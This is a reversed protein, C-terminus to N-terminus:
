DRPSPSTYLLCTSGRLLATRIYTNGTDKGCGALNVLILISSTAFKPTITATISTDALVNSSSTFGATTTANVVQLVHGASAQTTSNPFTVGNTGDIILSM